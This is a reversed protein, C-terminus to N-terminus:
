PPITPITLVDPQHGCITPNVGATLWSPMLVFRNLFPLENGWLDSRSPTTLNVGADVMM